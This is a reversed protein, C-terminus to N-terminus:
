KIGELLANLNKRHFEYIDKIKPNLMNYFMVPKAGVKDAVSKSMKPDQAQSYLVFSVNQEKGKAVVKSVNSTTPPIGPKPEITGVKKLGYFDCLYVVDAHYSIIAKGQLAAGKEKLEIILKDLQAIIETSNKKYYDANAPDRDSLINAINEVMVKTAKPSLNYHPNGDPHQHGESRDITTPVELVKLGKNIEIWGEADEMIKRNRSKTALAPLWAHEAGLGFSFLLDAKRMKVAFSPRLPVAHIDEYGTALTLNKVKDGGIAEVLVGIDPVSSVTNLKASIVSFTILLLLVIKM